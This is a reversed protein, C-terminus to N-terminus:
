NPLSQWYGPLLKETDYVSYFLQSVRIDYCLLLFTVLKTFIRYPLDNNTDDIPHVAKDLVLRKFGGSM